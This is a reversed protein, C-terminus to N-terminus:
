AQQPGATGFSRAEDEAGVPRLSAAQRQFRSREGRCMRSIRDFGADAKDRFVALELADDRFHAHGLVHGKGEQRPDAAVAHHVLLALSFDHGAEDLFQAYLTGTRPLLDALKGAAVLLLYQ